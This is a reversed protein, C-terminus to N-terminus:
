RLVSFYTLNGSVAVFYIVQRMSLIYGDWEAMDEELVTLPDDNHIRGTARPNSFRARNNGFQLGERLGDEVMRLLGEDEAGSELPTYAYRMMWEDYPFPKPPHVVSLDM